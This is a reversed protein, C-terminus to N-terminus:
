YELHSPNFLKKVDTKRFEDKRSTNRYIKELDKKTNLNFFVNEFNKIDEIYRVKTRKVLDFVSYKRMRLNEKIAPIVSKSYIAFLPHVSNKNKPMLIDYDREVDKMLEIVEREVFPYDCAIMFNYQYPSLALGTLIGGLPGIKYSDYCVEAGAVGEFRKVDTTVILIKEFSTYIERVIKEIMPVGCIKIFAKLEGVRRSKEGKALIVGYM